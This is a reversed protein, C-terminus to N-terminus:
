DGWEDGDGYNEMEYTNRYLCLDYRGELDAPSFNNVKKAFHIDYIDGHIDRCEVAWEYIVKTTMKIRESITETVAAPGCM